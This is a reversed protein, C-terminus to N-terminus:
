TPEGTMARVGQTRQMPLTAFSLFATKVVPISFLKILEWMKMLRVYNLEQVFSEVVSVQVQRFWVLLVGIDILLILFRDSVSM